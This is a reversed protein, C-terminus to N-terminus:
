FPTNQNIRFQQYAQWWKESRETDGNRQYYQAFNVFAPTLRLRDMFIASWMQVYNDPIVGIDHYEMFTIQNTPKYRVQRANHCTRSKSVNFEALEEAPAEFLLNPAPKHCINAAMDSSLPYEDVFGAFHALEHVFVSYTDALDLYMIGNHVNAKGEDAFVMAHTFAKDDALEAIPGIDCGLRPHGDFNPLCQLEELWVLSNICMPLESLRQDQQFTKIFESAKRTAELSTTIPQLTILCNGRTLMPKANTIATINQQYHRSILELYFGALEAGLEASRKFSSTANEVQGEQWLMRAYLLGSQADQQAAKALWPMAKDTDDHLLYWQYLSIEAPLYESQASKQLWLLRSSASESMLSLEFQSAPHDARANQQLLRKKTDADKAHMARVYQAQINGQNALLSLWYESLPQQAYELLQQQALENGKRVLTFLYRAKDDSSDARETIWPGYGTSSSALSIFCFIVVVFRM